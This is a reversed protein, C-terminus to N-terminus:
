AAAVLMSASITPTDKAAIPTFITGAAAKIPVTVKAIERAPTKPPRFNPSSSPAFASSKPPITMGSFAFGTTVSFTGSLLSGIMMRSLSLSCCIVASIIINLCSATGFSALPVM